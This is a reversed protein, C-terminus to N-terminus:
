FKAKNVRCRSPRSPWQSCHVHRHLIGMSYDFSWLKPIQKNKPRWTRWWNVLCLCFSYICIFSVRRRLILVGFCLVACILFVFVSNALKGAPVIYPQNPEPFNIEFYICAIMWPLGLGLFVNVSNSGTVNGIASDASESSKAAAMSAFTDPLSTGLAVLTIATTADDIGFTCGLLAAFEGVVATVMGIFVLAIFFAPKGGGYHSPPVLSFLVKWFISGFHLLGESLEVDELILNDQDIQPGLM